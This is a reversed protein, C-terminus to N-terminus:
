VRPRRLRWRVWETHVGEPRDGALRPPRAAWSHCEATRGRSVLSMVARLCDVCRLPTAMLKVLGADSIELV